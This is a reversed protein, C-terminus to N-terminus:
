ASSPMRSKQRDRPSPSTYLLCRTRFKKQFLQDTVVQLAKEAGEGILDMIDGESDEEDEEEEKEEEEGHLEDDDDEEEDGEWEDDDGEDEADQEKMDKKSKKFMSDLKSRVKTQDKVPLDGDADYKSAQYIAKVDELNFLAM